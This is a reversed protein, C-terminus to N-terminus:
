ICVYEENLDELSSRSESWSLIESLLNGVVTSISRVFVPCANAAGQRSLVEMAVGIASTGLSGALPSRWLSMYRALIAALRDSAYSLPAWALLSSLTDLCLQCNTETEADLHGSNPGPTSPMAPTGPPASLGSSIRLLGAAGPSSNPFLPSNPASFNSAIAPSSPRQLARPDSSLFNNSNLSPSRGVDPFLLGTTAHTGPSLTRQLPSTGSLGLSGQASFQALRSHDSPSCLPTPGVATLPAIGVPTPLCSDYLVELVGSVIDVIFPVASSMMHEALEHRRSSLVDTVGIRGSAVTTSASGGGGAVKARVVGRSPSLEETMSKIISLGLPMTSASQTMNFITPLLESFQAPWERKALEVIVQVLKNAVFPVLTTHRKTM